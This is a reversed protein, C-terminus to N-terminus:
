EGRESRLRAVLYDYKKEMYGPLVVWMYWYYLYRIPGPRLAYVYSICVGKDTKEVKQTGICDLAGIKVHDTFSKGPNIKVIKSRFNAGKTSAVKFTAGEKFEGSLHVLFMDKNWAPWHNIDSMAEWVEEQTVGEYNKYWFIELSYKSLDFEM